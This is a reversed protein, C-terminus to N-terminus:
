TSSVQLLDAHRHSLCWDVNERITRVCKDANVNFVYVTTVYTKYLKVSFINTTEGDTQSLM